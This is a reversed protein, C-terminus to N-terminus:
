ADVAPGSDDEESDEEDAEQDRTKSATLAGPAHLDIVIRDPQTLRFSSYEGLADVDINVQITGRNQADAAADEIVTIRKLMSSEGVIFRRGYLSSSVLSNALRLALRNGTRQPTFQVENSLDVVVGGYAPGVSRRVNTLRPPGAAEDAGALAHRAADVTVDVPRRALQAEFRALVARGERALISDPFYQVLERYAGAAGDLDQLNEEYIQ